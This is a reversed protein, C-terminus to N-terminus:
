RFAAALIGLCAIALIWCVWAVRAWWWAPRLEPDDTPEASQVVSWFSLGQQRVAANTAWYWTAVVFVSVTIALSAAALVGLSRLRAGPLGFVVGAVGIVVVGTGVIPILRRPM